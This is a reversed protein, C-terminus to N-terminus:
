EQTEYYSDILYHKNYRFMEYNLKNLADIISFGTAKFTLQQNEIVDLGYHMEHYNIIFTSPNDLSPINIEVEFKEENM